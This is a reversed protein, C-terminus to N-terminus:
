NTSNSGHKWGLFGWNSWGNNPATQWVNFIENTFREAFVELRGDANSGIAPQGGIRFSNLIAWNSWGNNPATQWIHHKTRDNRVVFVELRGDANHGVAPPVSLLLDLVWPIWNSWGSQVQRGFKIFIAMQGFQLYRWGETLEKRCVSNFIFKRGFFGMTDM